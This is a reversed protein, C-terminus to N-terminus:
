AGKQMRNRYDAVVERMRQADYPRLGSLVMKKIGHGVTRGQDEFTFSLAVKGRKGRVDLERDAPKLSPSQLALTDLHIEMSEYIILPRDPNIMVGQEEMLPVLIHPFAQGSFAVYIRILKEIVSPDRTIEGRRELHLYEKGNDGSITIESADSDPFILEINDNVMGSFVFKMHQSLGFHNLVLSFLLDGPVCFRKSDVDHIPNFDNAIQKAFASAQERSVLVRNEKVRYYNELIM